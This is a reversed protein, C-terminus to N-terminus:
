SDAQLGIDGDIPVGGLQEGTNRETGKWGQHCERRSLIARHGIM